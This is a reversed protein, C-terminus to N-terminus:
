VSHQKQSDILGNKASVKYFLKISMVSPVLINLRWSWHSADFLPWFLIWCSACIHVMKRSVYANKLRERVIAAVGLIAKVYIVTMLACGCNNWLPQLEYHIYKAFMDTLFGPM